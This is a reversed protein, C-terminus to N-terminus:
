QLPIASGHSLKAKVTQYDHYSAFAGVLQRLNMDSFQINPNQPTAGSGTGSINYQKGLASIAKTAQFMNYLYAMEGHLWGYFMYTQQKKGNIDITQTFVLLTGASGTVTHYAFVPSKSSAYSAITSTDMGNLTWYELFLLAAHDAETLGSLASAPALKATKM